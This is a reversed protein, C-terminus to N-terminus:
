AIRAPRSAAPAHSARRVLTVPVAVRRPRRAPDAVRELLLETTAAAMAALDQRVTTLRFADWGALTIDDFGILSLRAPVDIGDAAAANLAGLAIVDNACFVATPPSPDALLRRLGDHGAEYSYAGRRM